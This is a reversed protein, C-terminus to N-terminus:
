VAGAGKWKRYLSKLRENSTGFTSLYREVASVRYLYISRGTGNIHPMISSEEFLKAMQEILIPSYSSFCLGLNRYKMGGVKHRHIYLCGDTDMLGRVCANSYTPNNLIWNPIKLGARLKNGRPLGISVLYDVITTSALSIILTDREKRKRIAPKVGFLRIILGEVYKSYFADAVANMSINAQWPNNIGGDGLMIGVFEALEVSPGPINVKKRHSKNPYSLQPTVM